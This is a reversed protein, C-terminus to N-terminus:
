RGFSYQVSVSCPLGLRVAKVFTSAIPVLSSGMISERSPTQPMLGRLRSCCKANSASSSSRILSTVSIPLAPVPLVSIAIAAPKFLVTNSRSNRRSTTARGVIEM